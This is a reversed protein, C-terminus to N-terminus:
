CIQSRRTVKLAIRAAPAVIIWWSFLMLEDSVFEECPMFPAAVGFPEAVSV